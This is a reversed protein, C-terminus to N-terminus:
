TDTSGLDVTQTVIMCLEDSFFVCEPPCHAIEELDAGDCIKDCSEYFAHVNEITYPPPPLVPHDTSEWKKLADNSALNMPIEDHLEKKLHDACKQWIVKYHTLKETTIKSFNPEDYAPATIDM